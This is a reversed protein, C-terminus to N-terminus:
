PHVRAEHALVRPFVVKSLSEAATVRRAPLSFALRRGMTDSLVAEGAWMVSGAAAARAAYAFSTSDSGPLVDVVWTVRGTRADYRAGPPDFTAPDPVLGLPVTEAIEARAVRLESGRALAEQRALLEALAGPGYFSGAVPLTVLCSALCREGACAVSLEVGRGILGDAASRAAACEAAARCPEGPRCRAEPPGTMVVVAGRAQATSDQTVLAEAARIAGALDHTGPLPAVPGGSVRGFGAFCTAVTRADNSPRCWIGAGPGFTLLGARVHPHAAVALRVVLAELAPRFGTMAGDAVVILDYPRSRQPCSFRLNLGVNVTRGVTVLGPAAVTVASALCESPSGSAPPEAATAVRASAALLASAVLCAVPSLVRGPRRWVIRWRSAGGM